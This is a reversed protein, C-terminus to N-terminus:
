LEEFEDGPWQWGDLLSFDITSAWDGEGVWDMSNHFWPDDFALFDAAADIPPPYSSQDDNSSGMQSSATQHRVHLQGFYPLSIVFDECNGSRDRLGTVDRLLFAAQAAVSDPMYQGVTKMLEVTDYIKQWSQEVEQPDFLTPQSLLLHTIILAATMAQFDLMDCQRLMPSKPNRLIQYIRLMEMSSELAAHESLENPAMGDRKLAVPLHILNRLSHFWFNITNAGFRAEIPTNSDRAMTELESPMLKKCQSLEEELAVADIHDTDRSRALNRDIVRMGIRGLEFAYLIRPPLNRSDLPVNEPTLMYPLGLLLSLTKDSQWLQMWIGLLRPSSCVSTPDLLQAFTAARRFRVWAKRPLGAHLYFTVQSMLCEIGDLTSVLGDDPALFADAADMYQKQLVELPVGQTCPRPGKVSPPLQQICAALLVLVKCLRAPAGLTFSDIIWPRLSQLGAQDFSNSFMCPLEAFGSRLLGLTLCSEQVIERALEGSPAMKEVRKMLLRDREHVYTSRVSFTTGPTTAGSKAKEIGLFNSEFFTYFPTQEVDADLDDSINLGSFTTHDLPLKGAGRAFSAAKIADLDIDELIEDVYLDRDKLRNAILTITTELEAIRQRMTTTKRRTANRPVTDYTQQTCSVNRATCAHCNPATTPWICRVKRKRCELCSRTGKRLQKSSQSGDSSAEMTASHLLFATGQMSM